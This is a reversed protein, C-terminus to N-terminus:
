KGVGDSRLRYGYGWVTEIQVNSDASSLKSRIRRLTEDTVRTEVEDNYGWIQNLLEDRSFAKGEGRMLFLLMKLENPSLALPKEKCFLQKEDGSFRLDGVAVDRDTPDGGREMEVRRLLSKVRMLLVTPRFPKTLYDDGGQLIGNVYDYETDKATLLIIPVNNKERILRCCTLGDTGPMMIDLIVLDSRRKFFAGLLADGTEFACVEYGDNELFSRLTERINKEDEAIYILQKMIGGFGICLRAAGVRSQIYFEDAEKASRL